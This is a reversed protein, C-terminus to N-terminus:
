MLIVQGSATFVDENAEANELFADESEADELVTECLRNLLRELSAVAHAVTEGRKLADHLGSLLAEDAYGGTLPCPPVKGAHYLSGYRAVARRENTQSLPVFPVRLPALVHNEYWALARAGRLDGVDRLDGIHAILADYSAVEESMDAWYPVNAVYQRYAAAYGAPHKAKLEKATYVAVTITEM